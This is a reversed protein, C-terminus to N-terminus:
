RVRAEVGTVRKVIHFVHLLVLDFTMVPGQAAESIVRSCLHCVSVLHVVKDIFTTLPRMLFKFTEFWFPSPHIQDTFCLM